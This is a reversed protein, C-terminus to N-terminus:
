DADIVKSARRRRRRGPTEDFACPPREAGRQDGRAGLRAFRAGREGRERSPSMMRSRGDTIWVIIRAAGDKQLRVRSLANSERRRLSRSRGWWWTARRDVQLVPSASPWRIARGGAAASCWQPAM